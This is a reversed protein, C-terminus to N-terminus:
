IPDSCPPWGTTSWAPSTCPPGRGQWM